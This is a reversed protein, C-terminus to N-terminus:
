RVSRRPSSGPTRRRARRAERRRRGRRRGRELSGRTGRARGRARGTTTTTTTTTTAKKMAREVGENSTERPDTTTTTAEGFGDGGRLSDGREFRSVESLPFPDVPLGRAAYASGRRRGGVRAGTFPSGPESANAWADDGGGVRVKTLTGVRGDDVDAEQAVDLASETRLLAGLFEATGQRRLTPTGPAM